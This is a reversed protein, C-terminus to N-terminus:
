KATPTARIRKTDGKGDVSVYGDLELVRLSASVSGSTESKCGLQRVCAKKLDRWMIVGADSIFKLMRSPLSDLSRLMDRYTRIYEREKVGFQPVKAISPSPSPQRTQFVTEPFAVVETNAKTIFELAEDLTVSFGAARMLEAMAQPLSPFPPEQVRRRAKPLADEMARQKQNLKLYNEADRQANGNEIERKSLFASFFMEVGDIDDDVIDVVKFCKQSFEGGTQSYYFRWRQGDTIISFPATNNRNYDRLQWEVNGIDGNLKGVGKVEIFVTPSITHLFLALDVRTQDEEHVAPFESNVELPNWINWGLSQPVRAVLSLRVHEENSYAGQVLKSRIDELADKM